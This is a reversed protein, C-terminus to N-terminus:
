KIDMEAVGLKENKSELLTSSIIQGEIHQASKGTGFYLGVARIYM